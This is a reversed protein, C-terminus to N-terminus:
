IAVSKPTFHSAPSPGRRGVLKLTREPPTKTPVVVDVHPGAKTEAELRLRESHLWWANYGGIGVIIAVLSSLVYLIKRQLSDKVDLKLVM